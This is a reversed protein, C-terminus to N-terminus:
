VLDLVNHPAGYLVISYCNIIDIGMGLANTAIVIRMKSNMDKLERIIMAKCKATSESHFMNVVDSCEPLEDIIYTYIKSADTISNCYIITKPFNEKLDNLADILWTMAIEVENSVKSITLKINQRNPSLTIERIDTSKM